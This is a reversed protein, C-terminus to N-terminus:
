TAPRLIWSQANADEFLGTDRPVILGWTIAKDATGCSCLQGGVSYSPASPPQHTKFLAAKQMASQLQAWTTIRPPRKRQRGATPQRLDSRGRPAAAAQLLLDPLDDLLSQNKQKSHQLKQAATEHTM